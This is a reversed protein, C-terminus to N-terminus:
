CCIMTGNCCVNCAINLMCLKCCYDDLGGTSYGYTKQQQNYWNGRGELVDVLRRYQM